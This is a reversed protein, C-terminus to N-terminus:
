AEREMSGDHAGLSVPLIYGLLGLLVAILCDRSDLRWNWANRDIEREIDGSYRLPQERSPFYIDGLGRRFIEHLVHGCAGDCACFDGGGEESSGAQRLLQYPMLTGDM